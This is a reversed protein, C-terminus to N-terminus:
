GVWCKDVIGDSVVVNVRNEVYDEDLLRKENDLTAIRLKVGNSKARAYAYNLPRNVISSKVDSADRLSATYMNM